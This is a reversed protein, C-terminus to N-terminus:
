EDCVVYGCMTGRGAPSVDSFTQSFFCHTVDHCGAPADAMLTGNEYCCFDGMEAARDSTLKSASALKEDESPEESDGCAILLLLPALWARHAM